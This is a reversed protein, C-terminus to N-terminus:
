VIMPSRVSFIDRVFGLLNPYDAIRKRNTKFYTVYVPDFRVLTHFLRLDLWTFKAGTLYRRSTLREELVDLAAIYGTLLSAGLHKLSNPCSLAGHCVEDVASDYAKQTGAFGCRYVGNNINPYIIEANLGMLEAELEAPFLDPGSSFDAFGSNFIRLIESSENNVITNLKTDWLIPTSYTTGPKAGAMEYLDRIATAGTVTDPKCAADCAFSGFGGPSQLPADGPSKYVWGCHEDKKAGPRTRQWTPHVNSHSVVQDLGKLYLM